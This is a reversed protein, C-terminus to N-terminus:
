VYNEIVEAVVYSTSIASQTQNIDFEARSDVINMFESMSKEISFDYEDESNFTAREIIDPTKFLGNENFCDRPGRITLIKDDIELLGNTGIVNVKFQFPSAYSVFINASLSDCNINVNATDPANGINSENSLSCNFKTNKIHFDFVNFLLDLYHIAVTEFVGTKHKDKKSRWSTAYSDKFALGHTAIIKIDIIKGIQNNKRLNNFIHFLRSNRFNFNIKLKKMNLNVLCWNLQDNTVVFPKECLIYGDYNSLLSLYDFHTNNPSAIIIADCELLKKFDHTLRSDDIKNYPHYIVNVNAICELADLLRKAHNKTGIIGVTSM